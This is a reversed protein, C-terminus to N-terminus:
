GPARGGRVQRVGAVLLAGALTIVVPLVSYALANRLYGDM